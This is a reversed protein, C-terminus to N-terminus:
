LSKLLRKFEDFSKIDDLKKGNLFFAPTGQVQGKEGSLLDESVKNKAEQSDKDKKFQEINLNLEKAYGLLVEQINNMKSWSDQNQFILDVMEYFKGQKGAAEAAYATDYAFQHQSLPFHRYVFTVKQTIAYEASQTSEFQKLLSHFAKCAPCQLDSYEVLINKKENSWTLHDSDKIQNIEPFLSNKPSSTIVYSLALFGVVGIISLITILLKNSM